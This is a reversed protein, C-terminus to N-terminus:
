WSARGKEKQKETRKWNNGNTKGKHQTGAQAPIVPHPTVPERTQITRPDPNGGGRSHRTPTPLAPTIGARKRKTKGTTEPQKRENQKQTPNGGSHTPHPFKKIGTGNHGMADWKPTAPKPEWGDNGRLRSDLPRPSVGPPRLPRGMAPQIGRDAPAELAPEM